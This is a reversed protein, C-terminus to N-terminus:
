ESQGGLKSCIYDGIEATGMSGGLDRTSWGADLSEQVVSRISNAVRPFDMDEMIQAASMFVGIPNAADKGRYNRSIPHLVQYLRGKELGFYSHFGLGLGGELAAGVQSMLQGYPPITVVLDLSEPQHILQYGIQQVSNVQISIDEEMLKRASDKWANEGDVLESPVALVIKRRFNGSVMKGALTMLDMIRDQALYLSYMEIERNFVEQPLETTLYSGSSMDQIVMVDMPDTSKLACTTALPFIRRHFIPIELEHILQDVVDKGSYGDVSSKQALPGLWVADASRCSRLVGKPVLVGTQSFHDEGIELHQVQIKQDTIQQICELLKEMEQALETGVGDGPILVLKM